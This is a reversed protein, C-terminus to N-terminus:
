QQPALRYPLLSMVQRYHTLGGGVAIGKPPLYFLRRFYM